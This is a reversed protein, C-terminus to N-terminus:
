IFVVMIRNYLYCEGNQIEFEQTIINNFVLNINFNLSYNTDTNVDVDGEDLCSM